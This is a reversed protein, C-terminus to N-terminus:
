IVADYHGASSCVYIRVFSHSSIKDRVRRILQEWEDPLFVTTLTCDVILTTGTPYGKAIKKNIAELMIEAFDDIYSQNTYSTPVSTVTKEGSPGVTRILGDIGFAFGDANLRERLLFENQHVAQTVELTGETPWHGADVLGGRSEVRADYQQGTVWCISLYLGPGYFAQIYRCLPLLEELLRKEPRQRERLKAAGGDAARIGEFLRYVHQCFHLGDFFKGDFDTINNPEM